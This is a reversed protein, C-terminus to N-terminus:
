RTFENTDVEFVETDDGSLGVDKPRTWVIMGAKLITIWYRGPPLDRVANNTTNPFPFLPPTKDRDALPNLVVEYGGVKKTGRATNVRVTVLWKPRLTLGFGTDFFRQKIAIDERVDAVRRVAAPAPLAELAIKLQHQMDAFARYYEPPVEGAKADLTKELRQLDTQLLRLENEADPAQGVARDMAAILVPFLPSVLTSGKASPSQASAVSGVGHCLCASIMTVILACLPGIPPAATSADAHSLRIPM